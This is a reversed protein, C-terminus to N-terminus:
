RTCESQREPIVSVSGGGLQQAQFWSKAKETKGTRGDKTSAQVCSSEKEERRRIASVEAVVDKHNGIRAATKRDRKHSGHREM